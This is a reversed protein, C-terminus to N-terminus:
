AKLISQQPNFTFSTATVATGIEQMINGSASPCTNTVGGATTSLYVPLGPTLGTVSTNTGDLYISANNGSTVAALVFGTAEKGSTTANANRVNPTGSTNYISVIAGASLNETALVTAVEAGIGTPLVSNDLRGNSGLSVIKGADGAGTSTVLSAVETLKGSIYALFNAV